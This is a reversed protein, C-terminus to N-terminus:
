SVAHRRLIGNRAVCIFFFPRNMDGHVRFLYIAHVSLCHQTFRPLKTAWVLTSMSIKLGVMINKELDLQTTLALHERKSNM